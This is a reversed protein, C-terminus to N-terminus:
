QRDLCLRCPGPVKGDAGDRAHEALEQLGIDQEVSQTTARVRGCFPSTVRSKSLREANLGSCPSLQRIGPPIEEVPRTCLKPWREVGARRVIRRLQTGLNQKLSRYREILCETVPTAVSSRSADPVFAIRLLAVRCKTQRVTRTAATGLFIRACRGVTGTFRLTRRAEVTRATRAM